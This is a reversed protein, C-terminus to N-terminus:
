MLHRNVVRRDNVPVTGRENLFIQLAESCLGDGESVLQCTKYAWLKVQMLFSSRHLACKVAQHSFYALNECSVREIAVFFFIVDAILIFVLIQHHFYELHNFVIFKKHTMLFTEQSNPSIKKNLYFLCLVLCMTNHYLVHLTTRFM